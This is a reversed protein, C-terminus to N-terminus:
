TDMAFAEFNERHVLEVSSGAYTDLFLRPPRWKMPKWKFEYGALRGEREEIMDIESGQHTRWFYRNVAIGANSLRKIRECLIFNEWLTGTDQRLALPNFNNILANRIGTDDFYIKRKTTLENRLNRSFPPLRFIVFGKELLQIYNMVTQKNVGLMTALENYSVENGTQLALATM